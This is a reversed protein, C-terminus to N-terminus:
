PIIRLFNNYADIYTLHMIITQCFFLLDLNLNNITTRCVLQRTRVGYPEALEFQQTIPMGITMQHINSFVSEKDIFTSFEDCILGGDSLCITNNDIWLAIEITDNRNDLFNTVISIIKNEEIELINYIITKNKNLTDLVDQTIINAEM